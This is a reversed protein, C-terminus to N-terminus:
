GDAVGPFSAHKSTMDTPLLTFDNAFPSHTMGRAEPNPM